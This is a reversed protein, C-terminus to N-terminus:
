PSREMLTQHMLQLTRNTAKYEGDLSSLQNAVQNIKEHLASIDAKSPASEARAEIKAIREAHNDLRKDLGDELKTIRDNTVKDKNSMYVYFGVGCTLLFQLVQFGFKLAEIDM